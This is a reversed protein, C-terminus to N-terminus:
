PLVIVSQDNFASNRSKNTAEFILDMNTNEASDLFNNVACSSASHSQASGKSAFPSSIIPKGAAILAAQVQSKSGVVLDPSACDQGSTCDAAVTYFLYKQWLNNTFWAPLLSNTSASNFPAVASNDYSFTGSAASTSSCSITNTGCGSCIGSVANPKLATPTGTAFTFTGNFVYSGPLTGTTSCGTATCTFRRGGAGNCRSSGSTVDCRCTRNSNTRTCGTGTTGTFTGTTRTFEVNGLVSFACSSSSANGSTYTVTCSVPSQSPTTGTPLFGYYQNDRQYYEDVGLTSAYPYFGTSTKYNKLQTKAESAARLSVADMLEDITIYVLRDNFTSSISNEEVIFFDEDATAYGRNSYTFGGVTISDLFDIAGPAGERDQGDLAQGPSMIVAAVRDSILTTTGDSNVRYVTLWPYATTGTQRLYPFDTYPANIMGPNIVPHESNEYDYVLNRSVAYWLRNGDADRYNAGLGTQPAVCPNTQGYIPLQGILYSYQFTTTVCDSKGDYPSDGEYDSDTNRDPWPMEGPSNNNSVAWAILASKAQQLANNTKAVKDYEVATTNAVKMVYAAMGLALIFTMFILAAGAQKSFSRALKLSYNLM